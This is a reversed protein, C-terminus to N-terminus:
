CDAAKHMFGYNACIAPGLSVVGKRLEQVSGSRRLSPGVRREQVLVVRIESM